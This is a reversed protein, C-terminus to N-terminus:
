FFPHAAFADKIDAKYEGAEVKCPILVRGSAASSV